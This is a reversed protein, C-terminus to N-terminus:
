RLADGDERTYGMESEGPTRAQTTEQRALERRLWARAYTRLYDGAEPYDSGSSLNNVEYMIQEEFLSKMVVAGAGAQAIKKIREISNSLGSSSVMLPSKMKLGAFTTSLDIM